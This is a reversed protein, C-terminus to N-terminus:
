KFYFPDGTRGFIPAEKQDEESSADSKEDTESNSSNNSFEIWEKSEGDKTPKQEDTECQLYDMDGPGQSDFAFSDVDFPSFNSGGVANAASRVLGSMLKKAAELNQTGPPNKASQVVPAPNAEGFPNESTPHQQFLTRSLMRSIYQSNAANNMPDMM